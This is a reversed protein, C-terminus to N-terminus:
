WPWGPFCSFAHFPFFSFLMFSLFIRWATLLGAGSLSLVVPTKQHFVPHVFQLPTRSFCFCVFLIFVHNNKEEWNLGQQEMIWPDPAKISCHWGWVFLVRRSWCSFQPMLSVEVPNAPLFFVTCNPLNENWRIWNKDSIFWCQKKYIFSLDVTQFCNCSGSNGWTGPYSQTSSSPETFASKLQSWHLPWCASQQYNPPQWCLLSLM